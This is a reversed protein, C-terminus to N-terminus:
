RGIVFEIAACDVVLTAAPHRKGPKLWCLVQLRDMTSTAHVRTKSTTPTIPQPRIPKSEVCPTVISALESAELSAV